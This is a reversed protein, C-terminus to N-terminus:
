DFQIGAEQKHIKEFYINIIQLNKTSRIVQQDFLNQDARPM